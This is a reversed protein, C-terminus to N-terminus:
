GAAARVPMRKKRLALVLGFAALALSSPEPVGTSDAFTLVLRQASNLQGGSAGPEDNSAAFLYGEGSVAAGISFYGSGGRANIDNLAQANLNFVLVDDGDGALVDFSGYSTGSGLDNFIGADAIMQQRTGVLDQASATVDWFGLNLAGVQQYRRLEIRAGVVTGALGGLDFAFFSRYIEGPSLTGTLYNDNESNENAASMRLWAQNDVGPQIQAQSTTLVVTGAHCLPLAVALCTATLVHRAARRFRRIHDPKQHHPIM